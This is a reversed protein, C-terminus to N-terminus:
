PISGSPGEEVGVRARVRRRGFVCSEQSAECLTLILTTRYEFIDLNARDMPMLFDRLPSAQFLELMQALHDYWIQESESTYSLQSSIWSQNSSRFMVEAGVYPISHGGWSAIVGQQEDIYDILCNKRPGRQFILKIQIHMCMFHQISIYRNMLRSSGLTPAWEYRHRYAGKMMCPAIRRSRHIRPNIM